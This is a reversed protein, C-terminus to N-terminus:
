PVRDTGAGHRIVATYRAFRLIAPSKRKPQEKALNAVSCLRRTTANGLELNKEEEALNTASRSPVGSASNEM